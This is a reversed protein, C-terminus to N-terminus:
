GSFFVFWSWNIFLHVIVAAFIKRTKIYTLGYFVGAITALLMFAWPVHWTGLSGPSLDIFPPSSNNGHALGYLVSSILMAITGAKKVGGLQKEILNLIVGRFLIEEPLAVFFCIFLLKQIMEGFSPMTRSFVIFHTLLGVPIAIVLLILFNMVATRWEHDKLRFTYGMDPLQRMVLYVYLIINLGILLYVNIVSQVHPIGLDPVFGFEVPLWLVLVLIVDPITLVPSSNKLLMFLLFPVFCYLFGKLIGPGDAHGTIFAYILLVVFLFSPLIWVHIPHTEIDKRLIKILTPNALLIFPSIFLILALFASIAFGIGSPVRILYFTFSFVLIIILVIGLRIDNFLPARQYDKVKM